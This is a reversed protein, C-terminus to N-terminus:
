VAMCFASMQYDPIEGRSFGAVMYEIEGKTLVRAHKKKRIIELMDM